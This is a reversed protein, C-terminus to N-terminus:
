PHPQNPLYHLLDAISPIILDPRVPSKELAQPRFKGTQVLIGTLGANQGGGIDSDIDDGIIAVQEAPLQM